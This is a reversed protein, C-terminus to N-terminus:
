RWLSRFQLPTMGTERRFVSIFHSASCFGCREAVTEVSLSTTDLLERAANVRVRSLYRHPTTGLIERFSRLYYSGSLAERGALGAVSLERDAYNTRIYASSARVARELETEPHGSAPRTMLSFFRHILVSMEHPDAEGGQRLMMFVAELIERIGPFRAAKVCHGSREAILRVYPLVGHGDLHMWRMRVERGSTRYLHPEGLHMLMLDGARMERTEGGYQMSLGGADVLIMQCTGIDSADRAFQYSADCHYIGAHGTFFLNERTFEDAERFYRVSEPLVGLDNLM